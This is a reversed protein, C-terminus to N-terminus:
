IDLVLREGQSRSCCIMITKERAHEQPTRVTDLHQPQGELCIVECAGCVGQECSYMVDLGRTKLVELITEDPGVPVRMGSRALVVEFGAAMATGADSRGPAAFREMYLRGSRQSADMAALEDLMPQPGCAYVDCDTRAAAVVQAARPSQPGDAAPSLHLQVRADNRLQDAFLMRAPSRGWYHLAFARGQAELAHMMAYVPTIGIGGALLLVPAQQGNDDRLAFHNRPASIELAMGVRAEEHLWHSGGRGARDRKVAILYGEPGSSPLLSYQRVLGNPLHLDVHAGAQVPPFGPADLPVLQYHCIDECGHQIAQLRSRLRTATPESRAM